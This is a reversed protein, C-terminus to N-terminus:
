MLACGDTVSKKAKACPSTDGKAAAPAKPDGGSLAAAANSRHALGDSLKTRSALAAPAGEVRM